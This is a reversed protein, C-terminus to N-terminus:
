VFHKLQVIMVSIDDVSGRSVALEALKKCASILSSSRRDICLGRAVDVAEQNGVKDWLGDSALILFEFEPEITVVRTEPNPIVWQKMHSDGIGRTVALSGQLRWVGRCFDVYGGLGEVREREDERSPRHDCTLAEATGSVSLVARCDGANSVVLNGKKVLATVCCSGSVTSEKLFDSDTKLYGNAVAKEITGDDKTVEAIINKGINESAFEAAKTGGHGDFIGFFAQILLIRLKSLSRIKILVLIFEM